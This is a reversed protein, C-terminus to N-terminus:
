FIRPLLFSKLQKKFTLVSSAATSNLELICAWHGRLCTATNCLPLLAGEPAFQNLFATSPGFRGVVLHLERLYVYIPGAQGSSNTLFNTSEPISGAVRRDGPRCGLWVIKGPPTWYLSPPQSAGSFYDFYNDPHTKGGVRQSPLYTLSYTLLEKNWRM